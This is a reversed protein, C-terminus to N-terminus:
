CNILNVKRAYNICCGKQIKWGVMGDNLIYRVGM